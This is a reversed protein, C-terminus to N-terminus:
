VQQCMQNEHHTWTKFLAIVVKFERPSAEMQLTEYFGYSKSFFNEKFSPLMKLIIYM